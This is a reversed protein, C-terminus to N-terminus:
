RLPAELQAYTRDRDARIDRLIAEIESVGRERVTELNHRAIRAQLDEVPEASFMSPDLRDVDVFATGQPHQERVRELVSQRVLQLTPDPTRRLFPILREADSTDASADPHFAAMAFPIAGLPQRDAEAQRVQALFREFAGRDTAMRPYLLLAIETRELACLEDIARLTPTLDSPDHQLLVRETVRGDRRAHEAWPCLNYREVVETAYRRYM